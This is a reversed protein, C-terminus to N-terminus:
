KKNPYKKKLIEATTTYGTIVNYTGDLFIAASPHHNERHLKNGGIFSDAMLNNLHTYLPMLVNVILDILNSPLYLLYYLSTQQLNDVCSRSSDSSTAM